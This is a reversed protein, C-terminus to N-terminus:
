RRGQSRGKKKKNEIRKLSKEVRTILANADDRDKISLDRSAQDYHNTDSGSLRDYKLKALGLAHRIMKLEEKDLRM